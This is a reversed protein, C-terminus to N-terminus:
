HFNKPAVKRTFAGSDVKTQSWNQTRSPRQNEEQSPHLFRRSFQHYKAHLSRHSTWLYFALPSQHRSKPLRQAITQAHFAMTKFICRCNERFSFWELSHAMRGVLAPFKSWRYAGSATCSRAVRKRSRAEAKTHHLSLCDDSSSVPVNAGSDWSLSACSRKPCWLCHRHREVRRAAARSNGRHVRCDNRLASVEVPSKQSSTSLSFGDRRVSKRLVNYGDGCRCQRHAALSASSGGSWNTTAGLTQKAETEKWDRRLNTKWACIVESNEAYKLTEKSPIEKWLWPM